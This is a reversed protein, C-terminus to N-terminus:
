DAFGPVDVKEATDVPHVSRVYSEADDLADFDPRLCAVQYQDVWEGRRFVSGRERGEVVWGSRGVYAGMSPGNFDLITSHLRRLGVVYFAWANVTMVTDRGLGRGSFRPDLKVATLADRNHWDIDWLGTMGVTEDTAVEVVALRRTSRNAASAALWDGQAHLPVPFDWGVVRGSVEADNALHTLFPLDEPEIPRLAVHKGHIM